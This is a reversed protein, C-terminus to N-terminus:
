NLRRSANRNRFRETAHQFQEVLRVQWAYKHAVRDASHVHLRQFGGAWAFHTVTWSFMVSMTNNSQPPL